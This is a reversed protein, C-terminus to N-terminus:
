MCYNGFVESITDRINDYAFYECLASRHHLLQVAPTYHPWPSQLFGHQDWAWFAAAYVSPREVARTFNSKIKICLGRLYILSFLLSSLTVQILSVLRFSPKYSSNYVEYGATLSCLLQPLSWAKSWQAFNWPIAICVTKVGLLISSSILLNETGM